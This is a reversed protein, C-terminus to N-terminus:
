STKSSWYSCVKETKKVSLGTYSEPQEIMKMQEKSFKSFYKKLTPDKFAIEWLSKKTSTSQLTLMRVYEHADPHGHYALLIYLPEATIMIKNKDFNKRLNEKDVVLKTMVRNLRVLSVYFGALLEPVFRSSASNPPLIRFSGEPNLANDLFYDFRERVFHSWEDPSYHSISRESIAQSYLESFSRLM